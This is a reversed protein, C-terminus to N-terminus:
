KGALARDIAQEALPAMIAYGKGTPHVGDSSYGQRMGGQSDVLSDYYNLYVLGHTSCFDRLWGNIQRVEDAPQISPAWGLRDSPLISAIVMKIGNQKAIAAMAAFNDEIMEPTAPGTNGAIDNIGALVIVVSPKLHVVDQSFRVLLQATTEGSIGRNIYPKGPFFEGTGPLRGWADTISDGYFVVRHEIATPPPLAADDKRYRALIPWDLLLNQMDTSQQSLKTLDQKLERARIQQLGETTATSQGILPQGCNVLIFLAGMCKAICRRM